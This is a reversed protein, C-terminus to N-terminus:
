DNGCLAEYEADIDVTGRFGYIRPAASTLPEPFPGFLPAASGFDWDSLFLRWRATSHVSVERQREETEQHLANSWLLLTFLPPHATYTGYAALDMPNKMSPAQRTCRTPRPEPESRSVDGGVPTATIAAEYGLARLWRAITAIRLNGDSNLVQSVRSQTVGLKEALATQDLDSSEFAADLLRAVQAALDAAAMGQAGANTAEIEEIFSKEPRDTM